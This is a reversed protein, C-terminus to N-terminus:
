RTTKMKKASSTSLDSLPPRKGEQEDVATVKLIKLATLTDEKVLGDWCRVFKDSYLIALDESSHLINVGQQAHFIVFDKVAYKERNNNLWYKIYPGMDEGVHDAPIDTTKDIIFKSFNHQAFLEKLKLVNGQNGWGKCSIVIGVKKGTNELSRIFDDFVTLAPKSFLDVAAKFWEEEWEKDSRTGKDIGRAEWREFMREAVAPGYLSCLVGEIRLFIVYTESEPLGLTTAPQYQNLITTPQPGTAVGSAVEEKDLDQVSVPM